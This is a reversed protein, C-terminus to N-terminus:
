TARAVAQIAHLATTTLAEILNNLRPKFNPVFSHLGLPSPPLSQITQMLPGVTSTLDAWHDVTFGAAEITFKLETPTSLHSHEPGDAWPLPYDLAQGHGATLDWIALRGNPRLVRRAEAYLAKKDEVNMQVHQSFVVDYSADGFPLTTVDGQQVVIRHDLGVLHDLRRAIECYEESLDVATVACGFRDAVYRATGGIGAGADLVKSSSTIGALDALQVTALRGGTHFDELMALEAPQLNALDKGAAVLAAEVGDKATGTAYPGNM